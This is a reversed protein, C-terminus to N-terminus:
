HENKPAKFESWTKGYLKKALETANGINLDQVDFYRKSGFMGGKTDKVFDTSNLNSLLFIRHPLRDSRLKLAL